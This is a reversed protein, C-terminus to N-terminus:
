LTRFPFFCVHRPEELKVCIVLLEVSVSLICLNGSIYHTVLGLLLKSACVSPDPAELFVLHMHSALHHHSKHASVHADIERNPVIQM